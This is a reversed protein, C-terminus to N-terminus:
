SFLIREKQLPHDKKFYPKLWSDDSKLHLAYPENTKPDIKNLNQYSRMKYHNFIRMFEGLYIDAVRKDGRIMLMNEDNNKTSNNSFNASGTIVLPDDSLPDILMFKTHVYQVHTNLGTLKETKWKENLWSDANNSKLVNGIAIQNDHHRNILNLGKGPKDLLLYRLYSKDEEFISQFEKNLGFAATLFVAEQANEMKDAYLDLANLTSRPSFIPVLYNNEPEPEPIPSNEVNWPRFEKALPDGHLQQWYDYYAMAIKRDRVVHGVNAHGFIGGETINTSGTWVQVPKNNKLLIIVKNHSIYSSNSKRPQCYKQLGVQKIAKLNAKGPGSANQKDDFIIQVDVGRTVADKFAQLIPIYNFEYVMAKLSWSSDEAQEIFSIMGEELGRSLWKFAPPGVEDIPLNFFKEAYAQSGAVGRNFYIAHSGKSQNELSVTISVPSRIDLENPQGYVPHIYYTYKGLPDLHDYDGWLFSQIPAHRSSQAIGSSHPRNPDFFSLRNKLWTVEDEKHDKRKIAFGLLGKKHQSDIIDIGLLVTHSGVIAHVSFGNQEVRKRM